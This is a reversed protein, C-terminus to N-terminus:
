FGSTGNNPPRELTKLALHLRAPQALGRFFRHRVMNHALLFFLLALVVIFLLKGIGLWTSNRNEPGTTDLDTRMLAAETGAQTSAYHFNIGPVKSWPWMRQLRPLSPPVQLAARSRLVHLVHARSGIGEVRGDSMV